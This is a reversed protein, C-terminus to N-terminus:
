KVLRLGAKTGGGSGDPTPPEDDTQSDKNSNKADLSKVTSLSSVPKLSVESGESDSKEAELQEEYAAEEPLAMGQGNERSFLGLVAGMPVSVHRSAGSFRASFFVCDNTMSFNAVATPAINLTIQGDEVFELPVDVGPFEADVALFPTCNNDILWDYIARLFYPRTPTM